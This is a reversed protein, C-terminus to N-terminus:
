QCIFIFRSSQLLLHFRISFLTNDYFSFISVEENKNMMIYSVCLNALIIAAVGLIRKSGNERVFPDYYHIADKFKTGQQIFNVHGMNLRWADHDRCFETCRKLIKEVVAYDEEDWYIKAQSMTVPIFIKLEEDICSKLDDMLEQNNSLTAEILSQSLKKLRSSCQKSM